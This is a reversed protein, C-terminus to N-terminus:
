NEPDPWLLNGNEGSLETSLSVEISVLDYSNLVMTGLVNNCGLISFEFDIDSAFFWLKNTPWWMQPSLSDPFSDRAASLAKTSGRLLLYSRFKDVSFTSSKETESSWTKMSTLAQLTEDLNLGMGSWFAYYADEGESDRWRSMILMLPNMVQADVSGPYRQSGGSHLPHQICVYKDYGRPVM